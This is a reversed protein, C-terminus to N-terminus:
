GKGRKGKEGKGRKEKKGKERKGKGLAHTQPDGWGVIMSGPQVLRYVTSL